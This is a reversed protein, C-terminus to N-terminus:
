IDCETFRQFQAFAALVDNQIRVADDFQYQALDVAVGAYLYAIATISAGAFADLMAMTNESVDDFFVIYDYDGAAGLRNLLDMLAAGKHQGSLMAIGNQYSAARPTQLMESRLPIYTGPVGPNGKPVSRQFDFNNRRLERETASRFEPSRATLAIVDHGSDQLEMVFASSNGNDTARLHSMYYAAGQFDLICDVRFESSADLSRQWRYWQDSGVFQGEPQQLLTNDIDFVFLAREKEMREVVARVVPSAFTEIEYFENAAGRQVTGPVVACGSLCLAALMPVAANANTEKFM